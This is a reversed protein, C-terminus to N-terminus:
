LSLELKGKIGTAEVKAGSGEKFPEECGGLDTCRGARTALAHVLVVVRSKIKLIKRNGTRLATNLHSQECNFPFSLAPVQVSKNAVPATV